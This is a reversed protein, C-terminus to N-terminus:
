GGEVFDGPDDMQRRALAALGALSPEGGIWRLAQDFWRRAEGPDGLRRHLEGLLYGVVALDRRSHFGEQGKVAAQYADRARRRCEAEREPRGADGHMWAARLWHDGERLPGLGAWAACRAAAEYREAADGRAPAPGLERAVRDALREGPAVERGALEPQEGWPAEGASWGCGPCSHVGQPLPDTGATHRRLDTTLPGATNTSGIRSASFTAGCLPCALEQTIVTTM